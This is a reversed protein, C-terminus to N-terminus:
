SCKKQSNIGVWIVLIIPYMYKGSDFEYIPIENASKEALLSVSDGHLKVESFMNMHWRLLKVNEWYVASSDNSIFYIYLHYLNSYSDGLVSHFFLGIIKKKRKYTGQRTTALNKPYCFLHFPVNNM